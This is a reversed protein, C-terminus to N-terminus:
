SGLLTKGGSQTPVGSGGLLTATGDGGSYRGSVSASGQRRRQTALMEATRGSERTADTKAKTEAIMAQQDSANKAALKKAEESALHGKQMQDVSLGAGIVSVAGLLAPSALAAIAAAPM